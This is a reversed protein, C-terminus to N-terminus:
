DGQSESSACSPSTPTDQCDPVTQQICEKLSSAPSQILLRYGEESIDKTVHPEKFHWVGARDQWLAGATDTILKVPM